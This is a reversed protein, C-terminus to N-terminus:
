WDQMLAQVNPLTQPTSTVAQSTKVTTPSPVPSSAASVSTKPVQHGYPLGLPPLFSTSGASRAPMVPGPLLFISDLVPFYSLPKKVAPGPTLLSTPPGPPFAVSSQLAPAPAGADPPPLVPSVLPSFFVPVDSGQGPWSWPASPLAYCSYPLLKRPSPAPTPDLGQLFAQARSCRSSGPFLQCCRSWTPLRSWLPLSRSWRPQTRPCVEQAAYITRMLSKLLSSVPLIGALATPGAVAPSTADSSPDQHCTVPGAPGAPISSPSAADRDKAVDPTSSVNVVQPQNQGSENATDQSTTEAEEYVSLQEM